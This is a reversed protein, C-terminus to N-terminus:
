RAAAPALAFAVAIEAPRLRPFRIVTSPRREGWRPARWGRDLTPAGTAGLPILFGHTRGGVLLRLAAARDAQGAWSPARRGDLFALDDPAAPAVEVEALPWRVEVSGDGTFRDIVVVARAAADVQVERQHPGRAAIARVLPWREEVARLRSRGRAPLAFLRGDWLPAQEAGDLVATAHAATGRFRDRWLPDAGYCLTGPEDVLRVGDLAVALALQDNHSHGGVGRQGHGGARLAVWDGAAGRLM